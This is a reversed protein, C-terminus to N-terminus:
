LMDKNNQQRKKKLSRFISIRAKTKASNDTVLLKQTRSDRLVTGTNQMHLYFCTFLYIFLNYFLVRKLQLRFKLSIKGTLQLNIQSKV